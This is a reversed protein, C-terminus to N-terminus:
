GRVVETGMGGARIDDHHAVGDPPLYSFLTPDNPSGHEMLGLAMRTKMVQERM